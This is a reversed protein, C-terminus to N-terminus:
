EAIRLVRQPFPIGIGADSLAAWSSRLVADRIVWTDAIRPAHWYRLVLDISSEGFETFLVRPAPHSEVGEVATCASELVSAVVELDSGYAIGIETDSRRHDDPTLNIVPDQLLRSAPLIANRGDPTAIVVSRGNIEVVRGEEDGVVVEDGKRFPRRLQIIIGAVLNELTDKLAFAFAVGVIGLAGLLPGIRVGLASLAYVLAVVLVVAVGTRQLLDALFTDAGRRAVALKLVKGVVFAALVGVGMIAVATIWDDTELGGPEIAQELRDLDIDQGLLALFGLPTM